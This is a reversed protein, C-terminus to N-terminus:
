INLATPLKWLYFYYYLYLLLSFSYERDQCESTIQPESVFIARSGEVVVVPIAKDFHATQHDVSSIFFVGRFTIDWEGGFLWDDVVAGRAPRTQSLM